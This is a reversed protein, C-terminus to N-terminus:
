EPKIEVWASDRMQRLWDEYAAESKRDRLAQRAEMRRHDATVDVTKREIVQIIHWGFPTQVVGSVEGPKLGDMAREFEPVTDGASLWGLDGGKAATIDASNTKALEAFDAGNRLRAIMDELRRRVQAENVGDTKRILIHRAHTQTAQVKAEAADRLDTLKFLHFGAPSRLIDSVDGKRMNPVLQAFIAPLRNLPRWDLSGGQMADQAASYTAALKAFDEGQRIQRKIEEARLNLANLQEPTAGEPARLFIHSVLYERGKADLAGSALLADVEADSVTISSDVDRERLRSMLIQNRINARFQPWTYGEEAVAKPLEAPTMKNQESIRQIARDLVENEVTIGRTKAAQLLIKDMVMRELVQQRLQSEAPAPTGRAALQKHTQTMQGALESATIIEDNVVAVVRDLEVAHAIVPLALLAFLGLRLNKMLTSVTM